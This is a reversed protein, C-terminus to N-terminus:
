KRFPIGHLKCRIRSIIDHRQNIQCLIVWIPQNISVWLSQMKENWTSQWRNPRKGVLISLPLGICSAYANLPEYSYSWCHLGHKYIKVEMLPIKTNCCDVLNTPLTKVINAFIEPMWMGSFMRRWNQGGFVFKFIRSRKLPVWLGSYLLRPAWPYYLWKHVLFKIRETGCKTLLSCWPAM